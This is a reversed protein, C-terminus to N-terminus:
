NQVCYGVTVGLDQCFAKVSPTCGQICEQRLVNFVRLDPCDVGGCTAIWDALDAPFPHSTPPNGTTFQTADASYDMWKGPALMATKIHDWTNVETPGFQLIWLKLIAKIIDKDEKSSYDPGIFNPFIIDFWRNVFPWTATLLRRCQFMGLTASTTDYNTIDGVANELATGTNCLATPRKVRYCMMDNTESTYPLHFESLPYMVVNIFEEEDPYVCSDATDGMCFPCNDACRTCPRLPYVFGARCYCYPNGDVALETDPDSCTLCAMNNNSKFCTTCDAHCNDCTTHFTDGGKNGSCLCASNDFNPVSDPDATCSTCVDSDAACGCSDHCLKCANNIDNSCLFTTPVIDNQATTM